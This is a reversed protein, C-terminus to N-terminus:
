KKLFLRSFLRGKTSKTHVIYLGSKLSAVNLGAEDYISDSLQDWEFWKKGSLDTIRINLFGSEISKLFLLNEVPNPNVRLQGSPEEEKVKGTTGGPTFAWTENLFVNTGQLGTSIYGKNGVQFLAAFRRQNGSFSGMFAWQDTEPVYEYWENFQGTGTNHQGFGAYAKGNVSFTALHSRAQGPFSGRTSWTSLEPDYEHVTADAYQGPGRSVVLCIPKEM